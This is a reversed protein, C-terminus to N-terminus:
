FVLSPSNSFIMLYFSQPCESFVDTNRKPSDLGMTKHKRINPEMKELYETIRRIHAHNLLHAHDYTLYKNSFFMTMVIHVNVQNSILIQISCLKHCYNNNMYLDHFLLYTM